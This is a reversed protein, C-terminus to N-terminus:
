KEEVKYMDLRDEVTQIKKFRILFFCNFYLRILILSFNNSNGGVRGLCTPKEVGEEMSM